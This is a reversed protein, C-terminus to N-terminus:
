TLSTTYMRSILIYVSTCWNAHFLFPLQFSNKAMLVAFVCAKM